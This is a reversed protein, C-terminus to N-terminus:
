EERESSFSVAQVLGTNYHPKTFAMWAHKLHGSLAFSCLRDFEAHPLSVVAEIASRARIIAGVSAPRATGIKTRADPYLSLVIDWVDRVPEDLVGQLVLWPKVEIEPEPDRPQDVGVRLTLRFTSIEVNRTLTEPGKRPRSRRAM